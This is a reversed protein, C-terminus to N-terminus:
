RYVLGGFRGDALKELTSGDLTLRLVVSEEASFVQVLLAASDGQPVFAVPIFAFPAPGFFDTLAAQPVEALLKGTTEAIRVTGQPGTESDGQFGSVEIWAVYRNDPSFVAYGAGRNSSPLLDFTTEAGSALQRVVLGGKNNPAYALLSLDPSLASPVSESELVPSVQGSALDLYELGRHVPFVIDGGIGYPEYTYWVGAPSVALPVASLSQASQYAFVPSAGPITLVDGAYLSSTLTISEGGAFQLDSFAIQPEGSAGALKRLVNASYLLSAEGGTILSLTRADGGLYVLPVSIAGPELRAAIHVVEGPAPVPMEGLLAGQLDHLRARDGMYDYTVFGGPSLPAPAVTPAQTPAETPSLPPAAPTSTPASSPSPLAVTATPAPQLPQACAALLCATIVILFLTRM